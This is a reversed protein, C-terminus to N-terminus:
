AAAQIADCELLYYDPIIKQQDCTQFTYVMKYLVCCM